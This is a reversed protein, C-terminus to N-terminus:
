GRTKKQMAIARKFRKLNLKQQEKEPLAHRAEERKVARELRAKTSNDRM